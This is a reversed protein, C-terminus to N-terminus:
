KLKYVVFLDTTPSRITKIIIMIMIMIYFWLGIKSQKGLKVMKAKNAERIRRIDEIIEGISWDYQIM